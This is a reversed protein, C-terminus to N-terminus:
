VAPSYRRPCQWGNRARNIQGCTREPFFMSNFYDNRVGQKTSVMFQVKHEMLEIKESSNIVLSDMSLGV